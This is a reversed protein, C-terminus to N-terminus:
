KHIPLTGNFYLYHQIPPGYDQKHLSPAEVRKWSSKGSNYISLPLNSQRTKARQFEQFVRTCEWQHTNLFLSWLYSNFDLPDLLNYIRVEGNTM